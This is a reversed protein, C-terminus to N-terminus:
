SAANALKSSSAAARAQPSSKETKGTMYGGLYPRCERWGLLAQNRRELAIVNDHYVVERGVLHVPDAFRDLSRPCCQAVQRLVRQVEIGDLKGVALKFREQAFGSLPCRAPEVLCDAREHGLKPRLFAGVVEPM